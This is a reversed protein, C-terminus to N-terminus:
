RLRSLVIVTQHVRDDLYYIDPVLLFLMQLAALHPAPQMHDALIHWMHTQIQYIM